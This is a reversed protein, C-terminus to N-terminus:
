AAAILRRMATTGCTRDDHQLEPLMLTTAKRQRHDAM